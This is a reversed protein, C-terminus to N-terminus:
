NQKVMKWYKDQDHTIEFGYKKYWKIAIENTKLVKLEISDYNKGVMTLFKEMLKTGQGQNNKTVVIKEIRWKNPNRKGRWWSFYYGEQIDYMVTNRELEKKISGYIFRMYGSAFIEPYLKFLNVISKVAEKTEM